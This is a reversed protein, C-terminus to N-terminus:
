QFEIEKQPRFGHCYLQHMKMGALTRTVKKCCDGQKTRLGWEATDFLCRWASPGARDSGSTDYLPRMVESDRFPM